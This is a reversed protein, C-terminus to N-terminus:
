RTPPPIKLKDGPHIGSKAWPDLAYVEKIDVGFFKAVNPLTDAVPSGNGSPGPGRVTYIYCNAQGPCPVLLNMRSATAGPPWTASAVPTPVLTPSPSPSAAPTAIPAPTATPAPTSALTVTPVATLTPAATPTASASTAAVPSSADTRSPGGSIGPLLGTMGAVVLVGAIAVLALGAITLFPMGSRPKAEAAASASEEALLTGRMYRPCSVHVRQLCVLEQQRLSLPLPDGFAACRHTPIADERPDFLKGDPAISRLFKCFAPGDAVSAAEAWDPFAASEDLAESTAGHTEAGILDSEGSGKPVAMLLPDNAGSAGRGAGRARGLRSGEQDPPIRDDRGEGSSGGRADM